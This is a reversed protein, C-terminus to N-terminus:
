HMGQYTISFCSWAKATAKRICDYQSIAQSSPCYSCEYLGWASFGDGSMLECLSSSKFMSGLGARFQKIGMNHEYWVALHHLWPLAVPMPSVLIPVPPDCGELSKVHFFLCACTTIHYAKKTMKVGSGHSHRQGRHCQNHEIISKAMPHATSPSTCIISM